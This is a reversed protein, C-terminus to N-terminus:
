EYYVINYNQVKVSEGGLYLTQKLLNGKSDYEYHREFLEPEVIWSLDYPIKYGLGADSRANIIIKEASVKGDIYEVIVKQFKGRRESYMTKLGNERNYAYRIISSDMDLGNYPMLIKRKVLLTDQYTYEIKSTTPDSGKTYQTEGSVETLQDNDNYHYTTTNTKNKQIKLHQFLLDNKYLFTDSVFLEGNNIQIHQIMRGAEYQYTSKQVSLTDTNKLYINALETMHGNKDYKSIILSVTGKNQTSSTVLSDGNPLMTYEYNVPRRGARNSNEIHGHQDYRKKWMMESQESKPNISFWTVEKIGTHNFNGYFETKKYPNSPEVLKTPWDQGNLLSPFILSVFVLLKMPM